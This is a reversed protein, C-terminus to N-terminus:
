ICALLYYTTYNYILRGLFYLPVAIGWALLILVFIALAVKCSQTWRCRSKGLDSTSYSPLLGVPTRYYCYSPYAQVVDALLKSKM